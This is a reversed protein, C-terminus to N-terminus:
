NAKLGFAQTVDTAKWCPLEEVFQTMWRYINPYAELPLKQYKYLHMPAAVAIDALTVSNGCIWEQDNLRKELVSALRHWNPVEKDIAAQDPEAKMIPKLVNEMLYVYCSPSWHAAEWYQWRNIDARKTLERPYVAFAEAKDAAYQLIANSEWLKFDGDVLVPLTGNPNIELYESAKHGGGLYDVESTEFEINMLEFGAVVKRCNVTAPFHYLKMVDGM